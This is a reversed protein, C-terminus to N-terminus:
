RLTRRPPPKKHALCGLAGPAVRLARPFVEDLALERLTFALASVALHGQVGVRPSPAALAAPLPPPPLALLSLLSLLSSSASLTPARFHM